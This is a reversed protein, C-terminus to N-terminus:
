IQMKSLNDLEQKLRLAEQEAQQLREDHTQPKLNIIGTATLVLLALSIGWTVLREKWINVSKRREKEQTEESQKLVGVDKLLSALQIDQHTNQAETKGVRGNLTQLHTNTTQFGSEVIGQLKGLQQFIQNTSLKDM